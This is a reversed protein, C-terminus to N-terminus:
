VIAPCEDAVELAINVVTRLSVTAGHHCYPCEVYFFINDDGDEEKLQVQFHTVRGEACGCEQCQVPVERM